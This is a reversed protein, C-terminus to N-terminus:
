KNGRKKKKKKDAPVSREAGEGVTFKEERAEQRKALKERLREKNKAGKMQQDLKTQMGKLDVKGGGAMKSFMEQLGGMGPMSKMKELMATAEELLESEKIDGSKIKREITDGVKSVLGMMKSPDKFMGQLAEPSSGGMTEETIEKALAGIKGEMLGKLHENLDDATPMKGPNTFFEHV